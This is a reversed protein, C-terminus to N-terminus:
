TVGAALLAIVVALALSVACAGFYVVHRRWWRMAARRRHPWGHVSRVLARSIAMELRRLRHLRPRRLRPWGRLYDARSFALRPLGIYYLKEPRPDMHLPDM